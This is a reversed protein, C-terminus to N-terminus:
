RIDVEWNRILKQLNHTISILQFSEFGTLIKSNDEVYVEIDRIITKLHNKSLNRKTM